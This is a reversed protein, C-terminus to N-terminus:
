LRSLDRLALFLDSLKKNDFDPEWSPNRQVFGNDMFGFYKFRAPGSIGKRVTGVTILGEVYAPSESVGKYAFVFKVCTAWDDPDTSLPLPDKLDCTPSTRWNLKEIGAPGSRLWDELRMSPLTLDLQHVNLNRAYDLKEKDAKALAPAKDQASAAAVATASLAILGVVTFLRRISMETLWTRLRSSHIASIGTPPCNPLSSSTPTLDGNCEFNAPLDDAFRFCLDERIDAQMDSAPVEHARRRNIM